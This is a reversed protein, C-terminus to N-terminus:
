GDSLLFEVSPDSTETTSFVTEGKEAAYGGSDLLLMLLVASEAEALEAESCGFGLASGACSWGDACGGLCAGFGNACTAM